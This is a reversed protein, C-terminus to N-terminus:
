RLGREWIRTEPGPGAKSPAFVSGGVLLLGVGVIGSIGGIKQLSM